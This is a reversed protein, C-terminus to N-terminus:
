ATAKSFQAITTDFARQAMEQLPLKRFSESILEVGYYPVAFGAEQISEIFSPCNLNGEGCLQRQFRTDEFLTGVVETKADDLEVGTIFRSPISEMESYAAGSRGVHWIDLMLGGNPRDATEVIARAKKLTDIASFPMFELSVTAGVQSVEDCLRGFEEAMLQLDAPQDDLHSAGIKLNRMGLQGGLEIFDRRNRDSVARLDGTRYWDVLIELEFYKMGTDELIKRVGAVGYKQVSHRLDDVILGIGSWGARSAAEAREHLPFPSVENPACPYVDGAITWYAALLEINQASM